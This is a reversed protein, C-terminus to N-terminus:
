DSKLQLFSENPKPGRRGTVASYFRLSQRERLIESRVFLEHELAKCNTVNAGKLLDIMEAESEADCGGSSTNIIAGFKLGLVDLEASKM